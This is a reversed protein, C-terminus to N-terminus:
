SLLEELTTSSAAEGYNLMLIRRIDEALNDMGLKQYAVLKIKLATEVSDSGQYRDIVGKARNLAGVWARRSLYYRAVKIEAKALNNRLYVMRKIADPAYKSDPFRSVLIAFDDYSQQMVSVDYDSPERKIFFDVISDDLGFNVLGKLYYAYDVSAHRPHLKIFRDAAAVASEPEDYLFYTYAVDLQAQAAYSGFPYRSELAEYYEIAKLYNKSELNNKARQYIEAASMKETPDEDSACGALVVFFLSYLFLRLM